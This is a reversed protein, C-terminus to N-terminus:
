SQELPKCEFLRTIKVRSSEVIEDFCYGDSSVNGIINDASVEAIICSTNDSAFLLQRKIEQISYKEGSSVMEQLKERAMQSGRAERLGHQGIKIRM